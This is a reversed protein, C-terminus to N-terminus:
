KLSFFCWYFRNVEYPCSYFQSNSSSAWYEAQSTVDASGNCVAGDPCTKCTINPWTGVEYYGGSADCYCRSVNGTSLSYSNDPCKTCGTNGYGNAFTGKFIIVHIWYLKGDDCVSCDSNGDDSSFTGPECLRCSTANSSSQHSGAPCPSCKSQGTSNSFHGPQCPQCSTSGSDSYYGAHCIM